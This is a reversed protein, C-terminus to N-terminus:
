RDLNQPNQAGLNQMDLNQAGSDLGGQGKNCANPLPMGCGCERMFERLLREWKMMIDERLDALQNLLMKIKRNIPVPADDALFIAIANNCERIKQKALPLYQEIIQLRKAKIDSTIQALKKGKIDGNKLISEAKEMFAKQEYESLFIYSFLVVGSDLLSSDPASSEPASDLSTISDLAVSDSMAVDPVVADLMASDLVMRYENEDTKILSLKM